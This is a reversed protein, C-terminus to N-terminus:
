ANSRQHGALIQARKRLYAARNPYLRKFYDHDMIYCRWCEAFDEMDNTKAYGSVRHNGKLYQAFLADDKQVAEKWGKSSSYRHKAGDIIHGAEHAMYGKFDEKSNPTLYFTTKGGDTAMSKHSRNNYEIRWYADMPCDVGVFSVRKIGKRFYPPFEQIAESATTAKFLKSDAGIPYAFERGFSDKYILMDLRVEPINIMKGHSVIYGKQSLIYGFEKRALVWDQGIHGSELLEKHTLMACEHKIQNVLIAEESDMLDFDDLRDYLNKITPSQKRYKELYDNFNNTRMMQSAIQSNPQASQMISAVKSTNDIVFTPLSNARVIKSEKEKVWEKFQPPVDKVEGKPPKVPPEGELFAEENALFEEPTMLKTTVICRCFPHWGTFKFDKPYDGALEDCIDHFPVGNLTHNNSLGIHIGIVFDLQQRKLHDATRYAINGETASLRLANKYSSRYVGQGPHYAKAAQSLVLNGHKDRVRRFLKDPEKLYKRISQSMKQASLGEGLGLDIALELEQRCQASLKWVRDSLGMGVLTRKLFADHAETNNRYYRAKLAEPVREVGTAEEVDGYVKRLFESTLTVNEREALNWEETINNSITGELEDHLWRTLEEIRKKTQPYDSFKFPKSLNPHAISAAIAAAEKSVVAFISEIQKQAQAILQNRRRDWINGEAM